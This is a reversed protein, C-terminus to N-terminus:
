ADLQSTQRSLAKRNKRIGFLARLIFARGLRPAKLRQRVLVCFRASGDKSLVLDQDTIGESHEQTLEAIATRFDEVSGEFGFDKLVDAHRPRM